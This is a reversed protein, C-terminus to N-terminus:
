RGPSFRFVLESRVTQIFKKSNSASGNSVGTTVDIHSLDAAQFTSYRYETKWFLGPLFSLGYEYGSGVFWGHYTNAALFTAADLGTTSDRLNVQDFHAQTYGASVFTMFQPMM